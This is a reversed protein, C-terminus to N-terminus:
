QFAFCFLIPAIRLTSPLGQDNKPWLVTARCAEVGDVFEPRARRVAYLASGPAIGAVADVVNLPTEGQNNMTQMRGNM